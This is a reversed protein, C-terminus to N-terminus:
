RNLYRNESFHVYSHSFSRKQSFNGYPIWQTKDFLAKKVSVWETKVSISCRKLYKQSIAVGLTDYTTLNM